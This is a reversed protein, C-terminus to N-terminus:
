AANVARAGHAEPGVPEASDAADFPRQIGTFGFKPAPSNKGPEGFLESTKDTFSAQRPLPAAAAGSLPAIDAAEDIDDRGNCIQSRRAAADMNMAQAAYMSTIKQLPQASTTIARVRIPM